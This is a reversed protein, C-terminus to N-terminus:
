VGFYQHPRPLKKIGGDFLVFDHMLEAFRAKSWSSWRRASANALDLWIPGSPSASCVSVVGVDPLSLVDGPKYAVSAYLCAVDVKARALVAPRAHRPDAPNGSGSFWTGPQLGGPIRSLSISLLCSGYGIAIGLVLSGVHRYNLQTQPM